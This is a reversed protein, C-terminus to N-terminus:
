QKHKILYQKVAEAIEPDNRLHGIAINCGSCLLSRVKGSDHCHDVHFDGKGGPDTTGCSACKGGQAALTEAYWGRPVGYNKQRMSDKFREPNADRWAKQSQAAHDLNKLRWDRHLEFCCARCRRDLRDFTKTSGSFQDVPKTEKCRSCCKMGDVAAHKGPRSQPTSVRERMCPKCYFNLGDKKSKDKHFETTPKTQGCAKCTKDM